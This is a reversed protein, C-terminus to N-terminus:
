DGAAIQPMKCHTLTGSCDTVNIIQSFSQKLFPVAEVSCDALGLPSLSQIATDMLISSMKSM